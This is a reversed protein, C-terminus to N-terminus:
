SEKGETSITLKFGDPDTVEFARSGWPTDHPDSHLKIGAAKASAALDDINQRTRVFIRMGIGKVRDRGQKWDDQSVGIRSDGARLMVGVLVGKDEWREEIGFGLGEYFRISQQLDDATFSPVLSTAQLASQVTTDM